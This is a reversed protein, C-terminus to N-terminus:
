QEEHQQLLSSRHLSKFCGEGEKSEMSRNHCHQIHYVQSCDFICFANNFLSANVNIRIITSVCSLLVTWRYMGDMASVAM